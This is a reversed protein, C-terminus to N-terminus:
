RHGYNVIRDVVLAIICSGLTVIVAYPIFSSSNSSGFQSRLSLITTNLLTVGSTNLVLFTVMSRTAVSKNPNSKQMQKMALLGSPTAASGLGLMNMVINSAIYSKAQKDNKLDPFIKDLLPTLVKQLAQLLGNDKAIELIGCFFSVNAILPIVYDLTEKGISVLVHNLEVTTNSVFSYMVSVILMGIWLKNM